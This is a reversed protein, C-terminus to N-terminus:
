REHLREKMYPIYEKAIREHVSYNYHESDVKEKELHVGLFNIATTDAITTQKLKTYFGDLEKPIFCRDNINWLYVPINRERCLMDIFTMDKMYDQQELHTQNYHWMKIYMYSSRRIDPESVWPKTDKLHPFHGWDSPETKLFNEQYKLDKVLGISYREINQIEPEKQIYFDLPFIEKENLDPNIAVPFRGWYTSQVFVEDIDDHQHLAHALFNPYSRNGTGGSAMIIVEKNHLKSYIEAYNNDQWVTTPSNLSSHVYGMTHSCGIFLAKGM